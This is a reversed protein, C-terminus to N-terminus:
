KLLSIIGKLFMNIHGIGGGEGGGGPGKYEYCILRIVKIYNSSIVKYRIGKTQKSNHYGGWCRDCWGRRCGSVSMASTEFGRINHVRRHYGFSGPPERLFLMGGGSWAGQYRWSGCGVWGRHDRWGGCSGVRKLSRTSCSCGFGWRRWGEWIGKGVLNGCGPWGRHDRWGACGDEGKLGERSCGVWWSGRWGVWDGQGVPVRWGCLGSVVGMTRRNVVGLCSGRGGWVRWGHRPGRCGGIVRGVVGGFAKM